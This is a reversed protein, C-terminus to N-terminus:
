GTASSTSITACAAPSSISRGARTAYYSYDGVAILPHDVIAKLFATGKWGPIPHRTTPDPLPM